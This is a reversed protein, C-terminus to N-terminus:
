VFSSEALGEALRQVAAVSEFRRLKVVIESESVLLQEIQRSSEIVRRLSGNQWLRETENPAPTLVLWQSDIEPTGTVWPKFDGWERQRTPLRYFQVVAPLTRKLRLELGATPRLAGAAGELFRLMVEQGQLVPRLEAYTHSFLLGYRIPAIRWVAALQNLLCFHFLKVPWNTSIISLILFATGFLYILYM